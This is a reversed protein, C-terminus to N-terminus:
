GFTLLFILLLSFHVFNENTNANPTVNKLLVHSPEQFSNEFATEYVLVLETFSVNEQGVKKKKIKKM